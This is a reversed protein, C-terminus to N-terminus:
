KIESLWLCFFAIKDKKLDLAKRKIIQLIINHM